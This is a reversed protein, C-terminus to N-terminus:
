VKHIFKSVKVQYIRYVIEQERKMYIILHYNGDSIVKASRKSRMDHRCYTM